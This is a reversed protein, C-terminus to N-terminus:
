TKFQINVRRLTNQISQNERSSKQGVQFYFCLGMMQLKGIKFFVDGKREWVYGLTRRVPWFLWVQLRKRLCHLTVSLSDAACIAQSECRQSEAYRKSQLRERRGLVGLVGNIDSSPYELQLFDM